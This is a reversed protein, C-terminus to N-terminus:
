EFIGANLEEMDELSFIEGTQPNSPKSAPTPEAKEVTNGQAANGMYALTLLSTTETIGFEHRIKRIQSELQYIAQVASAKAQEPNTLRQAEALYFATIALNAKARGEKATWEESEMLYEFTKGLSSHRSTQIRLVFPQGEKNRNTKTKPQKLM